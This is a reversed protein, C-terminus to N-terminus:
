FCAIWWSRWYTPWLWTAIKWVRRILSHRITRVVAKTVVVLTM